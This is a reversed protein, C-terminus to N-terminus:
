TELARSPGTPIAAAACTAASASRAHRSVAEVEGVPERGLAEEGRRDGRDLALEAVPHEVRRGPGAEADLDVLRRELGVPELVAYTGAGHVRGVGVGREGRGEDLLQRAAPQPLATTEGPEREVGSATASQRWGSISTVTITSSREAAKKASPAACALPVGTAISQVEPVAAALKWGATQSASSDATGSITSVASRGGSSRPIPAPWVISWIM